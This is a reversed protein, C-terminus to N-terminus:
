FDVHFRVGPVTVPGRDKNYGPNNIHQLDFSAFFGRWLHATYFGEFIKEHGYTLNGDGLLFGKGGLALYEQHAAVIGNLVFVAGARDNRRHWKDGKTFAGLEASRDVETYAFSENHGDGWGLRAFVGIQSTIEQELNLGFGYKHRGLVRTSIIDPVPTEGEQFNRIAEEYNGMDAHNLYALLRVVGARHLLLNGRAEMELNEARARAINADLNIGNAVKPMLAEAFRAAFWHDYYQLILGDTYGRTNAAYDYAGNNDVTWNLFQLHSDTGWSNEDFYDVMSFKGALFEIRRVPLSTSINQWTREAPARDSGLPIIQRVIFRALYPTHSLGPNRVVDLNTFGGLGLAESLGHGEASEANVYVETTHTLQYGLYLTYLKSTANEAHSKLSNPGSYKAPFEPHWQLIVNVQGSIWYRSTESHPFLTLADSSTDSDETAVAPSPLPPKDLQDPAQAYALRPAFASLFVAYVLLMCALRVELQLTPHRM